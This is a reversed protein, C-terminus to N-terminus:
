VDRQGCGWLGEPPQVLHGHGSVEKVLDAQELDWEVQVSGIITCRCSKQSVQELTEGAEKCINRINM